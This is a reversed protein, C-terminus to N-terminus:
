RGPQWANSGDQAASLPGPVKSPNFKPAISPVGLTRSRMQERTGLSVQQHYMKKSAHQPLQTDTTRPTDHGEFADHGRKQSVMPQAFEQNRVLGQLLTDQSPRFPSLRGFTQSHQEHTPYSDKQAVRASVDQVHESRQEYAM